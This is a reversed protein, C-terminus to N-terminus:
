RSQPASPETAAAPPVSARDLRAKQSALWATLTDMDRSPLAFLPEAVLHRFEPELYTYFHDRWDPIPRLRARYTITGIGLQRRFRFVDSLRGPAAFVLEVRIVDPPVSVSFTGDAGVTIVHASPHTVAPENEFATFKHHHKYAIALVPGPVNSEGPLEIRGQIESTGVGPTFSAQPPLCGSMSALAFCLCWRLCQLARGPAPLPVAPRARSM